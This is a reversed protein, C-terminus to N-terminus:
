ARWISLHVCGLTGIFWMAVFIWFVLDLPDIKRRM